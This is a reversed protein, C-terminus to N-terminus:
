TMDCETQMDRNRDAERFASPHKRQQQQLSLHMSGTSAASIRGINHAHRAIDRRSLKESKCLLRALPPLVEEILRRTEEGRAEPAGRGTM